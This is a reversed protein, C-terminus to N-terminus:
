APGSGGETQGTKKSGDFGASDKEIVWFQNLTKIWKGREKKGLILTYFEPYFCDPFITMMMPLRYILDSSIFGAFDHLFHHPLPFRNKKKL